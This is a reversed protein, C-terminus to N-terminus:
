SASKHQNITGGRSTALVAMALTSEVIQMFGAVAGSEHVRTSDANDAVPEGPLTPACKVSAEQLILESAAAISEASM